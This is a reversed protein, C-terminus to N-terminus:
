YVWDAVVVVKEPHFIKEGSGMFVANDKRVVSLVNFQFIPFDLIHYRQQMDFHGCM